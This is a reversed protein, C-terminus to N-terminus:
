QDVSSAGPQSRGGPAEDNRSVWRAIARWGLLGVALFVGAVIVFGPAVGGHFVGWRLALGGVWVLLWVLVGAPLTALGWGRWAVAVWGAVLAILFPAATALVGWVVAAEDHSSRGIIVFALVVVVDLAGAWRDRM